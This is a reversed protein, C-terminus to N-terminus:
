LRPPARDEGRGRRPPRGSRAAASLWRSTNMRVPWYAPILSGTMRPESPAPSTISVPVADALCPAAPLDDDIRGEVPSGVLTRLARREVHQAQGRVAGVRLQDLHRDIPQM